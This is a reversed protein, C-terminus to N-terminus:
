ASIKELKDIGVTVKHVFDVVVEIRHKSKASRVRAILGAFPGDLVRVNEGDMLCGSAGTHDFAGMDQARRIANIAEDPVRALRGGPRLIEEIGDIELLRPIDRGPDCQAFLYRPFLPRWTVEREGRHNKRVLEVPLFAEMGSAEIGILARGEAGPRSKIAHWETNGM